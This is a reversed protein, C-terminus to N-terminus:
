QYAILKESMKKDLNEKIAEIDEEPVCGDDQVWCDPNGFKKIYEERLGYLSAEHLGKKGKTSIMAQPTEFTAGFKCVKGGKNSTNAGIDSWMSEYYGKNNSNESACLEASINLVSQSSSGDVFLLIKATLTQRDQGKSLVVKRGIDASLRSEIYSLDEGDEYNKRLSIKQLKGGAYFIGIAEDDYAKREMAVDKFLNPSM